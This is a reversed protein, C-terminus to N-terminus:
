RDCEEKATESKAVGRCIRRQIMQNEKQTQASDRLLQIMADTQRKHEDLMVRVSGDPIAKPDGASGSWALYTPVSVSGLLTFLALIVIAGHLRVSRGGWTFELSSRDNDNKRRHPNEDMM